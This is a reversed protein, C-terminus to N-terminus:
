FRVKHDDKKKASLFSDAGKNAPHEPDDYRPYSSAPKDNAVEDEEVKLKTGGGTGSSQRGLEAVQTELDAIRADKATIATDKETIAADKETITTQLGSITVAKEEVADTLTQITERASDLATQQLAAADVFGQEKTAFAAITSDINQLHGVSLYGGENVIASEDFHEGDPVLAQLQPFKNTM